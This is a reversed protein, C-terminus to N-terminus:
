INIHVVYFSTLSLMKLVEPDQGVSVIFNLTLLLKGKAHQDRRKSVIEHSQLSFNGSSGAVRLHM